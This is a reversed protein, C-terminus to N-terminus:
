VARFNDVFRYSMYWQQTYLSYVGSSPCLFQGFCTSIWALIFKHFQNIYKTKNYLFKIRHVTVHAYSKSFTVASSCMYVLHGTICIFKWCEIYNSWCGCPQWIFVAMEKLCKRCVFKGTVSFPLLLKATFVSQHYPYLFSHFYNLSRSYLSTLKWSALLCLCNVFYFLGVPLSFSLNWSRTSM